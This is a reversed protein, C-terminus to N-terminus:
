RKAGPDLRPTGQAPVSKKPIKTKGISLRYRNIEEYYPMCLDYLSQLKQNEHVEVYNPKKIDQFKETVRLDDNWSRNDWWGIEDTSGPTDWSSAEPIFPIDIKLCYARVIDATSEVLDDADIVAPIEGTHQITKTFLEALEKYGCENFDLDPMKHYYSPLMQAPHRILFTHQFCDMFEDDVIQLFYYPFDKIFLRSKRAKSKIDELVSRYSYEAKPMVDGARDFIREESYYASRGFPEQLVSFDSRQKMMWLFATSRSRPTSWLALIKKNMM